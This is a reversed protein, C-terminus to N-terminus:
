TKAKNESANNSIPFDFDVNIIGRYAQIMQNVNLKVNKLFIETAM